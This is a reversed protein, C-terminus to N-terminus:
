LGTQDAAPLRGIRMVQAKGLGSGKAEFDAVLEGHREAAAMMALQMLGAILHGPPLIELDVCKFDGFPKPLLGVWFRRSVRM